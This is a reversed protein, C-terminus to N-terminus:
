HNKMHSSGDSKWISMREKFNIFTCMLVVSRDAPLFRQKISLEKVFGQVIRYGAKDEDAIKVLRPTKHERTKHEQPQAL